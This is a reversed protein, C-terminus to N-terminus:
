GASASSRKELIGLLVVLFLLLTVLYIIHGAVIVNGMFSLVVGAISMVFAIVALALRMKTVLFSTTDKM